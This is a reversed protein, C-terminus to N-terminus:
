IMGLASSTGDRDVLDKTWMEFAFDRGLYEFLTLYKETALRKMKRLPFM